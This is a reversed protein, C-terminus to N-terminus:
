PNYTISKVLVSSLSCIAAFYKLLYMSSPLSLTMTVETLLYPFSGTFFNQSTSPHLTIVVRNIGPLKVLGRISVYIFSALTTTITSGCASLTIRRSALNARIGTTARNSVSSVREPISRAM